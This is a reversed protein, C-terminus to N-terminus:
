EPLSAYVENAFEEIFFADREATDIAVDTRWSTSFNKFLEV